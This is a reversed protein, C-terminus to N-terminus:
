RGEEREKEREKGGDWGTSFVQTLLVQGRMGCTLGGNNAQIEEDM